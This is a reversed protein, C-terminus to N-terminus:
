GEAWAPKDAWDIKIVDTTGDMEIFTGDEDYGGAVFGRRFTMYPSCKLKYYEGARLDRLKM